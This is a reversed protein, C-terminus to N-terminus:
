KNRKKKTPVFVFLAAAGIMMVIVIPLIAATDGTAVSDKGSGVGAGNSVTGSSSSPKSPDVPKVPDIPNTPDTPNIPDVPDTPKTEANKRMVTITYTKSDDESNVVVKIVNEGEILAIEESSKGSEVQKGNVLIEVDSGSPTVTLSKVSNEVSMTYATTDKDFEPTLGGVSLKLGTLEAPIPLKRIIVITYTKETGDPTKGKVEITNEGESLAIEDSAKGSLAEKGNVTVEMYNKWVPTVTVSEIENDVSATYNLTDAAFEPSLTGESLEIDTMTAEEANKWSAKMAYIDLSNVTVNGGVTYFEMGECSVDRSFVSSIAAEGDNGFSEVIINDLLIRMSVTRDTPLEMKMTRLGTYYSDGSHSFDSTLMQNEVDYKLTIYGGDNGTRLKFGFETVNDDLTFTGDIDALSATKGDLINESDPTVTVNRGSYILNGRLSKVEEVPYSYLIYSGDAKQYLKQEMAVTMAGTWTGTSDLQKSYNERLWSVAIIRDNPADKYHQAAYVVGAGGAIWGEIPISGNLDHSDGNYLLPSSDAKFKIIGNDDKVLEGVLYFSGGVTRVWKTENTGEVKIEYIDPCEWGVDTSNYTWNWLDDSTYLRGSACIMIWTQEEEFWLVKPDIHGPQGGIFNLQEGDHAKIWTEGGDETYALGASTGESRWAYYILIMRAEPPTSEDYLGATNNYDIIGSGSWMDGNNDPYLATNKEDFHVLDSTTAHGWHKPGGYLAYPYAQYFFQYEGTAANYMMGNPDNIFGYPATYHFQPRNPLSYLTEQDPAPKLVALTFSEMFYGEQSSTRIEVTSYGYGSEKLKLEVAEGSKVEKGGILIKTEEDATPIIKVTDLGAEATAQIYRDKDEPDFPEVFSAGELTLGTLKYSTGVPKEYYYVNNFTVDAGLASLGLRGGAFDEDTFSAALSGDLYYKFGGKGDYEVRINFNTQTKQSSTLNKSSNKSGLTSSARHLCAKGDSYWYRDINAGYWTTSNKGFVLGGNAKSNELHMDGKFIWVKDASAEENFFAFVDSSGTSNDGGFGGERNEWTGSIGTIGTLNTYFKKSVEFKVNEYVAKCYYTSLGVYGVPYANYPQEIVLQDGVYANISDGEVVVKLHFKGNSDPAPAEKRVDLESYGERFLRLQYGTSYNGNRSLKIGIWGRDSDGMVSNPCGFIFGADAGNKFTIDAELTFNKTSTTSVAHNNGSTNNVVASDTGTVESNGSLDGLIFKPPEVSKEEFKVGNLEVQCAYSMLGLYGGSYNSLSVTTPEVATGNSNSVTVVATGGVDVELKIHCTDNELLKAATEADYDVMVDVNNSDSYIRLQNGTPISDWHNRRIQVGYWNRNGVPNDSSGFFLGGVENDAVTLDAELTFATASTTSLVFNDGGANNITVSDAATVEASGTLDGLVFKPTPESEPKLTVKTNQFVASSSEMAALGLYGSQSGEVLTLAAILVDDVYAKCINSEVEVKLHYSDKNLVIENSNRTDEWEGYHFIKTETQKTRDLKLVYSPNVSSSSGACFILNAVKGSLFTVDTEYVFDGETKTASMVDNEGNGSLQLGADTYTANTGGVIAIGELNTNWKSADADVLEASVTMSPVWAMVGILSALLVSLYKRFKQKVRNM